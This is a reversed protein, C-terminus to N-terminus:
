VNHLQVPSVGKVIRLEFSLYSVMLLQADSRTPYRRRSESNIETVVEINLQALPKLWCTALRDDM